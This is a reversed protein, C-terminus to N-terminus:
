IDKWLVLVGNNNSDVLNYLYICYEINCVIM